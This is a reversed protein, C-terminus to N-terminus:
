PRTDKNATSPSPTPVITVGADKLLRQFEPSAM